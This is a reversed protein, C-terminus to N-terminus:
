QRLRKEMTLVKWNNIEWLLSDAKYREMTGDVKYKLKYVWKSGIAKKMPTSHNCDM